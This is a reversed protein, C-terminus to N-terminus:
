GEWPTAAQQHRAVELRVRKAGLAERAALLALEPLNNERSLHMLYLARTEGNVTNALLGAAQENSLHGLSGRVRVKVHTPYPGNMLRDLDHNFELLLCHAGRLRERVLATPQGLDTAQVAKVGASEVVFGYCCASDHPLLFPTIQMAGLRVPNGAELFERKWPEVQSLAQMDHCEAAAFLPIRLRKMFVQLGQIHDHHEHTIFVGSLQEPKVGAHGLLATLARSRLGCDVLVHTDGASYLTANGSSGSSLVQVRLSM